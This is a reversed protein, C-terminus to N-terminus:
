INVVCKTVNLPAVMKQSSNILRRFGKTRIFYLILEFYIYCPVDCVGIPFSLLQSYSKGFLKIKYYTMHFTQSGIERTNACM